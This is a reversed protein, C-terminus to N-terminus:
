TAGTPAVKNSGGAGGGSAWSYGYIGQGTRGGMMSSPGGMIPGGGGLGYYGFAGPLPVGSAVPDPTHSGVPSGGPAINPFPNSALWNGLNNFFNGINTWDTPQNWQSQDTPYPFPLNPVNITGPDAPAAPAAEPEAGPATPVEGTPTTPAEGPYPININGPAATGYPDNYTYTPGGGGTQDPPPAGAPIDGVYNWNQDYAWYGGQGNPYYNVAISPGSEGTTPQDPLGLTEPALGAGTPDSTFEPQTGGGTPLPVQDNPAGPTLGPTPSYAAPMPM